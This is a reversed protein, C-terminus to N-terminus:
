GFAVLIGALVLLTVIVVGVIVLRKRMMDAQIAEISNEHRAMFEQRRSKEEHTM